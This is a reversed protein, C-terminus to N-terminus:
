WYRKVRKHSLDMDYLFWDISKCLLNISQNRYSISRRWSLTLSEPFQPPTNLVRDFMWCPYKQSFVLRSLVTLQKWLFEMKENKVSNQIHKQSPSCCSTKLFHRVMSAKIIAFFDLRSKSNLYFIPLGYICKSVKKFPRVCFIYNEKM